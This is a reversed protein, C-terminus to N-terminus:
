QKLNKAIWEEIVETFKLLTDLLEKISEFATRDNLKNYHHALRNRLGNAEILLEMLEKDLVGTDALAEINSYDDKPPIGSDKCSMAIVDMVSEVAEQFAKYVALKTKEDDIFDLDSYGSIWNDIQSIRREIHMIKERYRKLRLKDIM